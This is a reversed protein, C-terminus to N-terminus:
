RRESRPGSRMQSSMLDGFRIESAPDEGNTMKLNEELNFKRKGNGGGGEEEIM